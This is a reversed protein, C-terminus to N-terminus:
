RYCIERNQNTRSAGIQRTIPVRDLRHGIVPIRHRYNSVLAMRVDIVHM